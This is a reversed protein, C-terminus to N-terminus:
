ATPAAGRSFALRAMTRPAFLTAPSHRRSGIAEFAHFVDDDEVAARYLRREMPNAPRGSALDAIM